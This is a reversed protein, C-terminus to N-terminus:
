NGFPNLGNSSMGLRINRPDDGFTPYEIDLADWQAGDSPHTLIKDDEQAEDDDPKKTREAHWRM